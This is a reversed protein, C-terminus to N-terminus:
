AVNNRHFRKMEYIYLYLCLQGQAKLQAGRWAYQPLPPMAGRM